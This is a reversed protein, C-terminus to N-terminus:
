FKIVLKIDEAQGQSREVKFVNKNYVIDGAYPKLDPYKISVVPRSIASTEGILLTGINLTGYVNSLKVITSTQSIVYGEFTPNTQTGQYVKEGVNYSLGPFLTIDTTLSVVSNADSLKLEESEEYKYPRLLIGYQRFSVDTPILGNETADIEGIKQTIMLNKAGLEISPNYGHGFKPPLIARATAGTGSGYITVNARTYNIGISEVDIKQVTNNSLRVSTILGTGDGEIAVRTSIFLTNSSVGGGSTITPKSLFIRNLTNSINTIHTESQLGVGSISMNIKINSSAIDIDDTITLFNNGALFSAVNVNSNYYNTGPNEVKIKALSGDVLNLTNLNYDNKYQSIIGPTPIWESTFFKNSERVNYMYKWLYCTNQGVETQIFGDSQTYDGIPEVQSVSSVNNCLCKYVNGESNMIYMPYVTVSSFTLNALFGNGNISTNSTFSNFNETPLTEYSGTDKVSVNTVSGFEDVELIELNASVGVGGDVTLIDGVEYDIGSTDITVSDVSYYVTESLLFDLSLTDDYQKYRTNATWNYRPIVLEVDGPIIKKAAILENWIKKENSVTDTIEPVVNENPYETSKGIYVYGVLSNEEEPNTSLIDKFSRAINTKLKRSIYYNAM